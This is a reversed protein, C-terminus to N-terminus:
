PANGGGSPAMLSLLSGAGQHKKPAVREIFKNFLTQSKLLTPWSKSDALNQRAKIITLMTDSLVATDGANLVQLIDDMEKGDVKVQQYYVAAALFITSPPVAVDLVGGQKALPKGLYAAYAANRKRTTFGQYKRKLEGFRTVYSDVASHLKHSNILKEATIDKFVREFAGGDEVAAFMRKPYRKALEPEGMYTAVYAQLGSSLEITRQSLPHGGISAELATREAPTLGSVESERRELYWGLTRLSAALQVVQPDNSRLFSDKIRNQNNLNVTVNSAFDKDSGSTIVRVPVAVNPKLGGSRSAAHLSRMTQGGNVVQYRSLSMFRTIPDYVADEALFVVGNNYHLFNGSDPGSATKRISANTGKEGQGIRINQQLLQEGYQEYLATLESAPMTFMFSDHGSTRVIYPQFEPKYQYKDEVTPKSKTYFSTQMGQIDEHSWTCFEDAVNLGAIFSELKVAIDPQLGTGSHVLHIRYGTPVLKTIAAAQRQLNDNAGATALKGSMILGIGTLLKDVEVSPFNTAINEPNKFNYFHVTGDMDNIRLADIGYDDFGDTVAELIDADDLGVLRRFYWWIVLDGRKTLGREAAIAKSENELQEKFLHILAVAIGGAPLM